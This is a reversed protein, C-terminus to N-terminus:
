QVLIIWGNKCVVRTTFVKMHAFRAQRAEERTQFHALPCSVKQSYFFVKVRPMTM